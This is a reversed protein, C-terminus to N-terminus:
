RRLRGASPRREPASGDDSHLETVHDSVRMNPTSVTSVVTNNNPIGTPGLPSQGKGVPSLIDAHPIINSVRTIESGAVANVSQDVTVIM